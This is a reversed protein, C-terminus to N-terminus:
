YLFYLRCLCTPIVQATLVFFKLLNKRDELDDCRLISDAVWNIIQGNTRYADQINNNVEPRQLHSIYDSPLIRTYKDSQLMLLAIALDKPVINTWSEPHSLSPTNPPCSQSSCHSSIFLLYCFNVTRVLNAIVSHLEMALEIMRQSTRISMAFEQMQALTNSGVKSYRNTM